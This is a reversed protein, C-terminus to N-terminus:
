AGYEAGWRSYALWPHDKDVGVVNGVFPLPPPGPPLPLGKTDRKQKLLSRLIVFSVLSLLAFVSTSAMAASGDRYEIYIYASSRQKTISRVCISYSSTANADM